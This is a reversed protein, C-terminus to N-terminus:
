RMSFLEYLLAKEEDDLHHDRVVRWLDDRGDVVIRVGYIEKMQLMTQLSEAYTGEFSHVAFRYREGDSTEVVMEAQWTFNRGSSYTNLRVETIESLTYSNTQRNLENYTALTGDKHMVSRGCFSLPFVALSLLFIVSAVIIFIMRYKRKRKLEKKSVCVKPKNKMLLPYKSPYAPPGYRIDSRGFIPTRNQYPVTILLIVAFLLWIPLWLMNLMGSGVTLSIVREDSFAIKHRIHESIFFSGFVSAATLIILSLYFLQDKWGLKPMDPHRTKAKTGM